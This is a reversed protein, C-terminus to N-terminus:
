SNASGIEEKPLADDGLAMCVLAKWLKELGSHRAASVLLPKKGLIADWENQRKVREAQKCKDAKTLIPLILLSKSMAFEALEQDLRQPPLRCDLLLALGKLHSNGSLYQELVKAWNRRETHSARAYGYGPLDVLYFDYPRVFYFNVSRTKGPTASVQALRKRGALANVLSSKGVNSRGAMAVQPLDMDPLQATTYVTYQLELTVNM